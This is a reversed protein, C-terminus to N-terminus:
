RVCCFAQSRDPCRRAETRRAPPRAPYLRCAADPGHSRARTVPLRAGGGSRRSRWRQRGDADGNGSRRDDGAFSRVTRVAFLFSRVRLPVAAARIKQRVMQLRGAGGGLLRRPPGPRLKRRAGHRQLGRSQTYSEQVLYMVTGNNSPHLIQSVVESQNKEAFTPLAVCFLALLIALIRPAVIRTKTVPSIM